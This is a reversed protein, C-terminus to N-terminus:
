HSFLFEAILFVILSAGIITSLYALITRERQRVIALLGTVFSSIGALMGALMTLVLAPRAAIDALITEGATTSSYLSDTFSFGILFLIPMAVVLGVSWQGATTQPVIKGLTETM